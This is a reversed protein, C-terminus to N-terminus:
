YWITLSSPNGDGAAGYGSGSGASGGYRSTSTVTGGEPSPFTASVTSSSSTDSGNSSTIASQYTTGWPYSVTATQSPANNSGGNAKGGGKAGGGSTIQVRGALYSDGGRAGDNGIGKPAGKGVGGLLLTVSDVVSLRLWRSIFFSVGGSGGNNDYSALLGAAGGGGGAGVLCCVSYLMGRPLGDGTKWDSLKLSIKTGNREGSTDSVWIEGDSFTNVYKTVDSYSTNSFRYLQQRTGPRCGPKCLKIQSGNVYFGTAVTEGSYVYGASPAILGFNFNKMPLVSMGANSLLVGNTTALPSFPRPDDHFGFEALEFLCKETGSSNGIYAL